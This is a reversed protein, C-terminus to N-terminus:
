GSVSPFTWRLPRIGRPCVHARRSQILLWLLSHRLLEMHFKDFLDANQRMKCGLVLLQLLLQLLLMKSRYLGVAWFRLSKMEVVHISLVALPFEVLMPMTGVIPFKLLLAMRPHLM